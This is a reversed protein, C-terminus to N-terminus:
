MAQSRAMSRRRCTAAPPWASPTERQRSRRLGRGGGFSVLVGAVGCVGLAVRMSMEETGAAMALPIGTCDCSVDLLGPCGDAIM